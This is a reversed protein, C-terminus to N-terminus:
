RPHISHRKLISEYKEQCASCEIKKRALDCAIDFPENHYFLDKSIEEPEEDIEDRLHKGMSIAERRSFGLIEVLCDQVVRWFSDKVKLDLKTIEKKM